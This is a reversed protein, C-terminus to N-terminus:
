KCILCFWLKVTRRPDTCMLHYWRLCSHCWIRKSIDSITKNCHNCVRKHLLKKQKVASSVNEFTETDLYPAIMQLNIDVSSTHNFADINDFSIDTTTIRYEKSMVLELIGPNVFWGLIQKIQEENTKAHFTTLQKKKKPIKVTCSLKKTSRGSMKLTPPM